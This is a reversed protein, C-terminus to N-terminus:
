WHRLYCSSSSNHHQNHIYIFKLKWNLWVLYCTCGWLVAKINTAGVILIIKVYQRICKWTARVSNRCIYFLGILWSSEHKITSSFSCLLLLYSWILASRLAIHALRCSLLVLWLRVTLVIWLLLILSNLLLINWIPLLILWRTILNGWSILLILLIIWLSLYHIM